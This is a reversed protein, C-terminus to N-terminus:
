GGKRKKFSKVNKKKLIMFRFIDKMLRMQSRLSNPIESNSKFEWVSYFGVNKHRIPYAFERIGWDKIYLVEGGEERIMTEIKNYIEKRKEEDLDPDLILMM